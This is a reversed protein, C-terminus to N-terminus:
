TFNEGGAKIVDNIEAAERRQEAATAPILKAMFAEANAPTEAMQDALNYSAWNPYGLLAAKQARLQAIQALTARTDNADGKETRTWSQNFLQERTTRDALSALAPQQTTNQLPVVWQGQLGRAQAAQAAGGMEGESLGALKGPDRVVLGGAKTGALLKQQFATQLTSLQTNIARLRAQDAPSVQAGARVFRQYVIKVLQLQDPTLRLANRRDYVQRVRAF